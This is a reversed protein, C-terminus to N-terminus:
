IQTTLMQPKLTLNSFTQDTSIQFLIISAVGKNGQQLPTQGSNIAARQQRQGQFAAQFQGDGILGELRDLFAAVGIKMTIADLM